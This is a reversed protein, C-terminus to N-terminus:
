AVPGTRPGHRRYEQGRPNRVRDMDWRRVPGDLERAATGLTEEIDYEYGERGGRQWFPISEYRMFRTGGNEQWSNGWAYRSGYAQGMTEPAGTQTESVTWGDGWYEAM